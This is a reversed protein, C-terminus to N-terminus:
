LRIGFGLLFLAALDGVSSHETPRAFIIILAYFQVTCYAALLDLFFFRDLSWPKRKRKFRLLFLETLTIGLGLLVFYFWSDFVRGFNQYEMGRYFMEESVHGWIMNGLCASAMTAAFIRLVPKTRFFRFFVPYYFARVLFERYHFTFRAWFSVLNTALWPKNFYPDMRYGCIRWIGVKFHVVSGWLMLWRVLDLLTTVLVSSTSITYGSMFAEVLHRTSAQYVPIGAREFWDILGYRVWDSFVLYLLAILLINVGSLVIKNKNECLFTSSSYHYGQGITVGWRWNAICAPILFVALYDSFSLTKPVLGDKYDVHYLIIREWQWFFMLVGLPLKWQEGTLGEILAFGCVTIMASQVVTTRVIPALRPYDALKPLLYRYAAALLLVPLLFTTISTASVDALPHLTLSCLIGSFVGLWPYRIPNPHLFVYVVTHSFLLGALAQYGFLTAIGVATTVVLATQKYALPLFYALLFGVSIVGFLVLREVDNSIFKQTMSVVLNSGVNGDEDFVHSISGGLSALTSEPKPAGLDAAIFTFCYCYLAMVLLVAAVVFINHQDHQQRQKNSTTKASLLGPM